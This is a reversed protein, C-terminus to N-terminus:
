RKPPQYGPLYKYETLVNGKENYELRDTCKLILMIGLGGLKGERHRKRAKEVANKGHTDDVYLRWDFGKGEDSIVITIKQKDLLYMVDIIKDRRHRNGHQAANGLGERFAACLAVQGEEDLGSGAFLKAALENARDINQDNTPFQFHVEQEFIIQEESARQLQSEAVTLLRRIEFPQAVQENGLVTFETARKPDSGKPLMVIIPILSTQRNSKLTETLRQFNPLQADVIVLYTAGSEVSTSTEDVDQCVKVKWGARNFHFELTDTFFDKQPVALLITSTKIAEVGQKLSLAPIFAIDRGGISQKFRPHAMFSIVKKAPAILKQGSIPDDIIKANEESVKLALFRDIKLKDNAVLREKLITFYARTASDLEEQAIGFRQSLPGLMEPSPVIFPQSDAAPEEGSLRVKAFDEILVERQESLARAIATTIGDVVAGCKEAPWGIREGLLDAVNALTWSRQLGGQISGPM